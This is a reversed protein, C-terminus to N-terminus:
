FRSVHATYLTDSREIAGVLATDAVARDCVVVARKQELDVECGSVGPTANLANSITEVCTACMMGNVDLTVRRQSATPKEAAVSGELPQPGRLKQLAYPGGVFVVLVLMVIVAIDLPDRKM